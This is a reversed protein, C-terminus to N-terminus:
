ARDHRVLSIQEGQEGSLVCFKLFKPRSPCKAVWRVTFALELWGAICIAAM